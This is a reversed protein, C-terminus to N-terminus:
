FYKVFWCLTPVSRDQVEATLLGTLASLLRSVWCWQALASRALNRDALTAPPNPTGGGGRGGLVAQSDPGDLTLPQQARPQAQLLHCAPRSVWCDGM